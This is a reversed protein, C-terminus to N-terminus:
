VRVQLRIKELTKAGIGPVDLLQDVSAYRGISNRHDLIRKATVPGIGAIADLQELTAANLDLRPDAPQVPQRQESAQPESAQPESTQPNSQQPESPQPVKADADNGTEATPPVSAADLMAHNTSQVVLLTLSMCTVMVMLLVAALAHKASFRLRAKRHRAREAFREDMDADRVGSLTALTSSPGPRPAAEDHGPPMPVPPVPPVSPGSSTTRVLPAKATSAPDPPPYATMGYAEPDPAGQYWVDM